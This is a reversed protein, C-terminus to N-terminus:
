RRRFMRHHSTIMSNSHTGERTQVNGDRSEEFITIQQQVGEGWRSMWEEDRMRVGKLDESGFVHSKSRDYLEERILQRVTRWKM